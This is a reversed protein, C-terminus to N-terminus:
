KLKDKLIDGLTNRENNEANIEKLLQQEKARELRRISLRVRDRKPDLTIIMGEIEMGKQLEESNQSSIDEKRILADVNEGITVFAGFDKIDRIKGKVVDGIKHTKAFEQTPTELLAKRSLTIKEREM